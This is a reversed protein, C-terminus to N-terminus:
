LAIICGFFAMWFALRGYGLSLDWKPILAFRYGGTITYLFPWKRALDSFEWFPTLDIPSKRSNYNQITNLRANSSDLIKPIEPSHSAAVGCLLETFEPGNQFHRCWKRVPFEVVNLIYKTM